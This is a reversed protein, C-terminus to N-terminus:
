RANPISLTSPAAFSGAVNTPAAAGIGLLKRREALRNSSQKSQIAADIKANVTAMPDTPADYIAAVEGSSMNSDIMQQLKDEARSRQGVRSLDQQNLNHAVTQASKVVESAALQRGLQNARQTREIMRANAQAISGKAKEFALKLSAYAKMTTAHTQQKRTLQSDLTEAAANFEAAEQTKQQALAANPPTSAQAAAADRTAEDAQQLAADIRSQIQQLEDDEEHVTREMGTLQGNLTRMNPETDHIMKADQDNELNMVALPDADLAADGAKNVQADSAHAVKKLANWLSM